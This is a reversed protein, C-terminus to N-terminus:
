NKVDYARVKTWWFREFSLSPFKLKARAWNEGAIFVDQYNMLLPMVNLVERVPEALVQAVLSVILEVNHLKEM